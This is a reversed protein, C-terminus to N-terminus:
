ILNRTLEKLLCVRKCQSTARAGLKKIGKRDSMVMTIQAEPYYKNVLKLKRKTDPEVYGKMEFYEFTNDNNRITFDVLWSSDPYVFTHTEYEWSKIYNQEKLLQLYYALKREQKSRFEYHKGEIDAECWINKYDKSM